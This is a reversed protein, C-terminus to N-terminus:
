LRIFGYEDRELKTQSSPAYEYAAQPNYKRLARTAIRRIDASTVEYKNELWEEVEKCVHQATLEAEGIYGTANLCAQHISHALTSRKYGHTFGSRQVIRKQPLDVDLGSLWSHHPNIQHKKRGRM